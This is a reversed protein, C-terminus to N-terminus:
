KKILKSVECLLRQADCRLRVSECMIDIYEDDSKIMSKLRTIESEYREIFENNTNITNRLHTIESKYLEIEEQKRKYVHDHISPIVLEYVWDYFNKPISLKSSNILQYLGFKNIFVSHSRTYKPLVTDSNILNKLFTKFENKVHENIIDRSSKYGLISTIHKGFFM